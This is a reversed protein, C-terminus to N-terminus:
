RSDDLEIKAEHIDLCDPHYNEGWETKKRDIFAM